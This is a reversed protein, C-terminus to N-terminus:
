LLERAVEANLSRTYSMASENPHPSDYNRTSTADASRTVATRLRRVRVAGSRGAGDEGSEGTCEILGEGSLAHHRQEGDEEGGARQEDGGGAEVVREPDVRLFLCPQITEVAKDLLLYIRCAWEAEATRKRPVSWGQQGLPARYKQRM